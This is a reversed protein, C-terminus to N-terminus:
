DNDPLVATEIPPTSQWSEDAAVSVLTEQITPSLYPPGAETSTSINYNTCDNSFSSSCRKSLKLDSLSHSFTGM